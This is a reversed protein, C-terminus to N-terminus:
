EIRLPPKWSASNGEKLYEIIASFNVSMLSLMSHFKTFLLFYVLIILFVLSYIASWYFIILFSLLILFLFIVPSFVYVLLDIPYCLFGFLGYKLNFFVDKHFLLADMVAKCRRIKQKKLKDKEEVVKEEFFLEKAYKVKYGKKRTQIGM